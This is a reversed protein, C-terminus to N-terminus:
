LKNKFSIDAVGGFDSKFTLSDQLKKTRIGNFANIVFHLMKELIMFAVYSFCLIGFILFSLYVTEQLPDNM